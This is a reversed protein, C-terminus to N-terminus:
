WAYEIRQHRSGVVILPPPPTIMAWPDAHLRFVDAFSAAWGTWIGFGLVIMNTFKADVLGVTTQVTAGSTSTPYFAWATTARKIGSPVILTHTVTAGDWTGVSTWVAGLDTTAYTLPLITSYSGNHALNFDVSHAPRGGLNNLAALNFLQVTAGTGPAASVTM